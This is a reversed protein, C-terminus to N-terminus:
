TTGLRTMPFYAPWFIDGGFAEIIISICMGTWGGFIPCGHSQGIAAGVLLGCGIMGTTMLAGVLIALPWCCLIGMRVRLKSKEYALELDNLFHALAAGVVGMAVSWPIWFDFYFGPWVVGDVVRSTHNYIVLVITAVAVPMFLFGAVPTRFFPLDFEKKPASAGLQGKIFLGVILGFVACVAVAWWLGQLGDGAKLVSALWSEVSDLHRLGAPRLKHACVPAMAAGAAVCAVIYSNGKV